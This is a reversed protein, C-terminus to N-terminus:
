GSKGFTQFLKDLLGVASEGENNMVDEMEKKTFLSLKKKQVTVPALLGDHEGVCLYM